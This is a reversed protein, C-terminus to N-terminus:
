GAIDTKKTHQCIFLYFDLHLYTSNPSWSIYHQFYFLLELSLVGFEDGWASNFGRFHLLEKFASQINFLVALICQWLSANSYQEFFICITEFIATFARKSNEMLSVISYKRLFYGSQLLACGGFSEPIKKAPFFLPFVIDSYSQIYEIFAIIKIKWLTLWM